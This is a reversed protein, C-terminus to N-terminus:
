LCSFAATAGATSAPNCTSNPPSIGWAASRVGGDLASPTPSSTAMTIRSSAKPDTMAIPRGIPVASKPRPAPMATIVKRDANM